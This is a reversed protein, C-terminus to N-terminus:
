AGRLMMKEEFKNRCKSVTALLLNGTVFVYRELLSLNLSQPRM